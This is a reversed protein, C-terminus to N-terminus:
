AGRKKLIKINNVKELTPGGNKIFFERAKRKEELLLKFLVLISLESTVGIIGAYMIVYNVESHKM